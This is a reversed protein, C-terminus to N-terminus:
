NSIVKAREGDLVNSLTNWRPDRAVEQCDCPNMNLKAGCITCLGKCHPGCLPKMPQNTISYQRLAEGMDLRHQSDITFYGETKEPVHISRGTTIDVTPLFEEDIDVNTPYSFPTLCRGCTLPLGVDFEARVWIGKDTRMLFMQGKCHILSEGDDLPFFEELNNIRTSGISEKLLQAVNLNM